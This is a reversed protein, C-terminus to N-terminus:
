VGLHQNRALGANAFIHDRAENMLRARPGGRGQRRQVAGPHRIRQHLGFQEAVDPAAEGARITVFRPNEFGSGTPRDEEVLDSLHAQAHLRRQEPKELRTLYLTYAGIAHM